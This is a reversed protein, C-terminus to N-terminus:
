AKSRSPTSGSLASVTKGSDTNQKRMKSQTFVWDMNSGKRGTAQMFEDTQGVTSELGMSKTMKTSELTNEGMLGLIFVSGTWTTTSGPVEINEGM